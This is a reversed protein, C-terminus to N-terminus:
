AALAIKYKVRETAAAGRQNRRFLGTAVGRQDLEIGFVDIDDNATPLLEGTLRRNQLPATLTEVVHFGLFASPM